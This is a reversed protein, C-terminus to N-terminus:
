GAGSDNTHFRRLRTHYAASGNPPQRAKTQCSAACGGKAARAAPPRGTSTARVAKFRLRRVRSWASGSPGSNRAAAASSNASSCSFAMSCPSTGAPPPAPAPASAPGPAAPCAPPGGAQNPGARAAPKAGMVKRRSSSLAMRRLSAAKRAGSCGAAGRCRTEISKPLLGPQSPCSRQATNSHCQARHAEQATPM